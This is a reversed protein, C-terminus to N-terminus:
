KPLWRSYCLKFCFNNSRTVNPVKPVAGDVEFVAVSVDIPGLALFTAALRELRDCGNGATLQLYGWM